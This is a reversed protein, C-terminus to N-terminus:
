RRRPRRRLALLGLGILGMTGAGAPGGAQCGDYPEYPGSCFQTTTLTLPAAALTTEVTIPSFTGGRFRRLTLRQEGAAGTITEDVTVLVYDHGDTTIAGGQGALTMSPAAAIQGARSIARGAIQGGVRVPSETFTERHTWLTFGDTGPAPLLELLFEGDAFAVQTGPTVGGDPELTMAQVGGDPAMVLVLGADGNAAMAIGRGGPVLVVPMPDLVQGDDAIRVGVLDPAAGAVFEADSSAFTSWLVWTAGGIRASGTWPAYAFAPGLVRPTPDLQAGQADFRVAKLVSAEPPGAVWTVVFQAGDFAARAVSRGYPRYDDLHVRARVAGSPERLLVGVEHDTSPHVIVAGSSVMPGIGGVTDFGVFGSRTAAVTGDAAVHSLTLETSPWGDDDLVSWAVLSEGGHAALVVDYSARGAYETVEVLEGDCLQAQATSATAALGLGAIILLRKM